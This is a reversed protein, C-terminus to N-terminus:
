VFNLDIMEISALGTQLLNGFRHFLVKWVQLVPVEFDTSCSGRIQFSQTFCNGSFAGCIFLGPKAGVSFSCTQM